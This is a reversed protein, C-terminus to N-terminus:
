AAGRLIDVPDVRSAKRAPLWAAVAGALFSAAAAIVYQLPSRDVPIQNDGLVPINLNAVLGILAYGLLWGVLVGVLALLIGELVFILQLDGASFGISRLIAIDRQKDTISTSVVTYIGFSAVLLLASVVTYMIINRTVLLSLIDSSREQWSQAKFGFRAELSQAVTGASYPDELRIGIRNIIFPRGLLSQAERLM